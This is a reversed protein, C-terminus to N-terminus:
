CTTESSKQVASSEIVSLVEELSHKRRKGKLSSMSYVKKVIEILGLKSLHAKQVEVLELVEFFISYDKKSGLLSSYKDVFARVKTNLIVQSNIVFQYVNESGSKKEIRGTKFFFLFLELFSRNCVHQYVSFGFNIQIGFLQCKSFVISTWLSGEGEFFGALFFHLKERFLKKDSLTKVLEFREQQNAIGLVTESYIKRKM